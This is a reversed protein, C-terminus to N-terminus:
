NEMRELVVAAGLGAGGSIGAVGFQVNRREMEGLLTTTIMAGSAGQAHGMSMTCGNVNFKGPAVNLDKQYKLCTASFAEAFNHLDINEMKLGAKEVANQVSYQGGLLMILPECSTSDFARIKARPKLGLAKGKELSGMLLLSAGDAMTPSNGIHHVHRLQQLRPYKEKIKKSIHASIFHGFVPEFRQMSDRSSMPRICEDHELVTENKENVVPIVDNFFYGNETAHAARQHSQIAYDDLEERSFGEMSAILDASVGMHTFDTKQVVEDDSFWAGKDAFMPVSSLMEIGGAIVLDSMGANIKAKALGIATLASTCFTNVTLGEIHHGWNHYLTSVKALNSGQGGVQGVCGLIVSEVEQDKVGTRSELAAYLQSLLDIPKIDKLAGKKASGKGRPSRVADFIYTDM